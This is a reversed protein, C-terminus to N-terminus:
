FLDSHSGTEILLIILELKNIKYVLLWDPEIHCERCNMFRTSNILAHDHYKPELKEGKALRNVINSLKTLDKNRKKLKKLEKKFATTLVIDYM